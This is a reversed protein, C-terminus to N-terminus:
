KNLFVVCPHFLDLVSRLYPKEDLGIGLLSLQYVYLNLAARVEQLEKETLCFNKEEM